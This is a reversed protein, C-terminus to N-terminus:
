PQGSHLLRSERITLVVRGVTSLQNGKAMIEERTCESVEGKYKLNKAKTCDWGEESWVVVSAGHYLRGYKGDNTVVMEYTNAWFDLGDFTPLVAGVILRAHSDRGASYFAYHHGVRLRVRKQAAAASAAEYNPSKAAIATVTFYLLCFIELCHM